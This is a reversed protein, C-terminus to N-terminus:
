PAIPELDDATVGLDVLADTRETYAKMYVLAGGRWRFAAWGPLAIEAGSHRGHGEMVYDALTSDGLDFFAQPHVRIDRWADDLDQQYTRLGEHGHYVAGGVPAFTSHYEIRRECCAIIADVDRSNWADVFRRTLEVNRASM